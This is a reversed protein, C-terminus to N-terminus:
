DGKEKRGLPFGARERSPPRAPPLASHRRADRKHNHADRQNAEDGAQDNELQGVLTMDLSPV